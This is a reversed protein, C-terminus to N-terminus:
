YNESILKVSDDEILIYHAKGRNIYGCNMFNNESEDIPYHTHGCVIVQNKKVRNEEFVKSVMKKNPIKTLLHNFLYINLLEAFLYPISLFKLLLKHKKIIPYEESISKYYKHGHFIILDKNNLNLIHKDKSEFSFLRTREDCSEKTDHNGHIYITTKAKLIPFLGSWKSQIFKPFTTHYNDWFDGNIIVKDVSSILNKLYDFKKQDFKLTLHTDSFILIKMKKNSIPLKLM